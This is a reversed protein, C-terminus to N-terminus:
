NAHRQWEYVVSVTPSAQKTYTITSATYTGSWHDEFRPEFSATGNSASIDGITTANADITTDPRVLRTKFTETFRANDAIILSGSKITATVGAATGPLNYPPAVGNVRVLDYTGALSSDFTISDSCAALVLAACAVAGTIRRIGRLPM